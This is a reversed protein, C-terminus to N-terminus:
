CEHRRCQQGDEGSADRTVETPPATVPETMATWVRDAFEEPGGAVGFDNQLREATDTMAERILTALATEAWRKVLPWAVAALALYGTPRMLVDLEVQWSDPATKRVAAWGAATLTASSGTFRIQPDASQWPDHLRASGQLELQPGFLAPTGPPMATRAVFSLSRPQEPQDLEFWGDSRNGAPDSASFDARLRDSRDVSFTIFVPCPNALQDTLPANAAGEVYSVIEYAAGEQGGSGSVLRVEPHRRGDIVAIGDEAFGIGRCRAILLPVADILREAEIGPVEVSCRLRAM